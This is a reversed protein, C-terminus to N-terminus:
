TNWNSSEFINSSGDNVVYSNDSKTIILDCTKGGSTFEITVKGTSTSDEIKDATIGSVDSLKSIATIIKTANFQNNNETYSWMAATYIQKATNIVKVNKAKDIYASVKPVTLSALLIVISVAVVVEILTFGKSASSKM